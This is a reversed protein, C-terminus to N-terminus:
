RAHPEPEARAPSSALERHQEPRALGLAPPSAMFHDNEMLTAFHHYLLQHHSTPTHTPTPPHPHTHTPTPPRPHTHTTHTTHTPPTPPIPPTPPRPCTECHTPTHTHIRNFCVPLLLDVTLEHFAPPCLERISSQGVFSRLLSPLIWQGHIRVQVCTRYCHKETDMFGTIRRECQQENRSYTVIKETM